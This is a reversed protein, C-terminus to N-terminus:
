ELLSFHFQRRNRNGWSGTTWCESNPLWHPQKPADDEVVRDRNFVRFAGSTLDHDQDPGEKSDDEQSRVGGVQSSEHDLLLIDVGHRAERVFLYSVSCLKVQLFLSTSCNSGFVSPKQPATLFPSFWTKKNLDLKYWMMQESDSQM